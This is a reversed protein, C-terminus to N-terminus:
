QKIENTIYNSIFFSTELVKPNQVIIKIEKFNLNGNRKM